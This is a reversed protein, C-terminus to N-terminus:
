SCGHQLYYADSEASKFDAQVQMEKTTDNVHCKNILPTANQYVTNVTIKIVINVFAIPYKSFTIEFHSFLLYCSALDWSRELYIIKLIKLLQSKSFKTM